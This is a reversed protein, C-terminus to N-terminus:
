VDDGDAVVVGCPLHLHRLFDPTFVADEDDAADFDGRLFFGMGEGVELVILLQVFELFKEISVEGVNRKVLFLEAILKDNILVLFHHAFLFPQQPRSQIGIQVLKIIHHMFDAPQKNWRM